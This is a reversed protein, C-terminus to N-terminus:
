NDNQKRIPKLDGFESLARDLSDFKRIPAHWKQAAEEAEKLERTYYDQSSTMVVYVTQNSM